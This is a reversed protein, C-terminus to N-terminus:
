KLVKNEKELNELTSDLEAITKKKEIVSRRITNARIFLTKDEAEVQNYYNHVDKSLMEVCPM